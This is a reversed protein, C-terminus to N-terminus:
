LLDSSTHMRQRMESSYRQIDEPMWQTKDITGIHSVAPTWGAETPEIYYLHNKVGNFFIRGQKKTLHRDNNLDLMHPGKTDEIWDEFEPTHPRFSKAMQIVRSMFATFLAAVGLALLTVSEGHKTMIEHIM